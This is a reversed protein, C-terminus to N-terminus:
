DTLSDQLIDKVQFISIDPELHQREFMLKDIREVKSRVFHEISNYHRARIHPDRWNQKMHPINVSLYKSVKIM